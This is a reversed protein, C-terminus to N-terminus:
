AWQSGLSLSAEHSGGDPQNTPEDEHIQFEMGDEDDTMTVSVGRARGSGSGSGNGRPGEPSREVPGTPGPLAQNSVIHWARQTSPYESPQSSIDSAVAETDDYLGSARQGQGHAQNDEDMEPRDLIEVDFAHSDDQVSDDEDFLSPDDQHIEIEQSQSQSVSQPQTEDPDVNEGDSGHDEIGQWVVDQPRLSRQPQQEGDTTVGDLEDEDDEFVDIDIDADDGAGFSRRGHIASDSDTSSGREDDDYDDDGDDMNEDDDPNYGGRPMAMPGRSGARSSGPGFAHPPELPANSFPTAYLFPTTRRESRHDDFYGMLGPAPVSPSRSMSTRSWRPTNRAVSPSRTALRRKSSTMATAAPQPRPSARASPGPAFPSPRRDYPTAAANAQGTYSVGRRRSQAPSLAPLIPATPPLSNTRIHPPRAGKRDRLSFPSQARAAQPSVSLTPSQVGTFFQQSPSTSSRRSQKFQPATHLSLTSSNPNTTPAEDLRDSWAWCDEMADAEPVDGNHSSSQSDPYVRTLQRLKQWSWGAEMAYNGLPHDQLYAEPQTVYLRHTGTAKMVVSSVLFTYNWLTPTAMEAPALFRLRSDKHLKRLPVWAQRLGLFDALPSNAVAYGSRAGIGATVRLIDGFAKNIALQISRADSGRVTVQKILGRSKLRQDIVRGAAFARPLLWQSERTHSVWEGFSPTQPDPTARSMTSPMQTWDDNGIGPPGATSPLQSALENAGVWVGKLPFPLFVVELEWPKHYTPLSTAQLQEVQQKLAQIQSYMESRSSLRATADSSVSVVSATADDQGPGDRRPRRSSALSSNDNSLLKEVEDVRSELEMVRLDVHDHKDNCDEHGAVSFSTNELQNLRQEHRQVTGSLEHFSERSPGQSSALQPQSLARPTAAETAQVSEAFLSAGEKHMALVEAHVSDSAHGPLLGLTGAPLPILTQLGKGAFPRLYGAQSSSATSPPQSPMLCQPPIPPLPNAHIPGPQSQLFSGWNLTDPMPSEQATHAAAPAAVPDEVITHMAMSPQNHALSAPFNLMNFDLSSGLHSALQFSPLEFDQVPSLPERNTKPRENEQEMPNATGGAPAAVPAPQAPALDEHFCAHHSCMCLQSPSLNLDAGAQYGGAGTSQRSWFRRCGCRPLNQDTYNCPGGPLVPATPRQAQGDNYIDFLFSRSPQLSAEFPTAAM